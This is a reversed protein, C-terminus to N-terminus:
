SASDVAASTDTICTPWTRTHTNQPPTNM